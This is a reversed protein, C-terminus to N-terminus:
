HFMPLAPNWDPDNVHHPVTVPHLGIDFLANIFPPLLTYEFQVNKSTKHKYEGVGVYVLVLVGVEVKVRVGVGVGDGVGDRVGVGVYVLVGDGVGDLVGVGV